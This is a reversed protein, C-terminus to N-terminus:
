IAFIIDHNKGVKVQCNGVTAGGKVNESQRALSDKDNNQERM